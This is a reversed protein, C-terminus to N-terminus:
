AGLHQPTKKIFPPPHPGPPARCSAVPPAPAEAEGLFLLGGPKVSDVLRRQIRAQVAPRFYILTNRCCVLDFPGDPVPAEASLDHRLFEVCSRVADKVRDGGRGRELFAERFRPPLGELMGGSFTGAAARALARTDVDTALIRVDEPAWGLSAALMALGFPEQGFASGASWIRLPRPNEADRTRRLEAELAAWAGPNRFFSSYKITLASVLDALEGAVGLLRDEYDALTRVNTVAMRGLLRREVTARRYAAFDLGTRARVLALVRDIPLEGGGGVDCAVLASVPAESAARTM